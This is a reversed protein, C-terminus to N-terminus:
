VRQISDAAPAVNERQINLHNMIAHVDARLERLEVVMQDARQIQGQDGRQQQRRKLENVIEQVRDAECGSGILVPPLNGGGVGVCCLCNIKDVSGLEGYPRRTDIKYCPCDIKLVVEEPELILTKKGMVGPILPTFVVPCLICHGIQCCWDTVDYEKLVFTVPTLPVDGEENGVKM